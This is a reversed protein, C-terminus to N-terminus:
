EVVETTTDIEEIPEVEMEELAREREALERERKEAEKALREEEEKASWQAYFDGAITVSQAITEQAFRQREQEITRQMKVVDLAAEAYVKASELDASMQRLENEYQAQIAMLENAHELTYKQALRAAESATPMTSVIAFREAFNANVKQVQAERSATLLSLARAHQNEAARIAGAKSEAAYAAMEVTARPTACSAIVVAILLTPVFRIM